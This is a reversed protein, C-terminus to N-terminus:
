HYGVPAGPGALRPSAKNPFTAPQQEPFHGFFPSIENPPQSRCNKSQPDKHGYIKRTKSQKPGYIALKKKMNATGLDIQVYTKTNM